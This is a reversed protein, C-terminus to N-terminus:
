VKVLSFAARKFDDDYRLHEQLNRLAYDADEREWPGESGTIPDWTFKKSAHPGIVQVAYKDVSKPTPAAVEVYPCAFEIQPCSKPRTPPVLKAKFGAKAKFAKVFKKMAVELPPLLQTPDENLAVRDSVYWSARVIGKVVKGNFDTLSIRLGELPYPLTVNGIVPYLETRPLERVPRWGPIHGFYAESNKHVSESVSRSYKNLRGAAELKM